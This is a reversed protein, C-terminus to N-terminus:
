DELPRSWFWTEPETGRFGARRYAQMAVANDSRVELTVKCCGITRAHAKVAALLERGVGRGRFRPAVAIDHVNLLPRAKFTSFGILCIALGAPEGAVDALFVRAGGHKVLGPILGERAEASLPREDGFQDRCYMDLLDVIATQHASNTLDALFVTM